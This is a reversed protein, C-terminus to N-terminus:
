LEPWIPIGLSGCEDLTPILGGMIKQTIFFHRFSYPVLNRGAHGIAALKIIREFLYLLARKTIVNLGDLSFVLHEKIAAHDQGPVVIKGWARFLGDDRCFFRRSTRVKSTEPRVKIEVLAVEGGHRRSHHQSWSLDGWRLQLQEGTRLGTVSAILFYHGALSRQRWEDDDLRNRARDCYLAVAERIATVEDAEFTSRRIAEDNKDLRPLKRFDFSDIRTENHRFLWAMMANITSQENVITTQRAALRKVNTVRYHFYDECAGRELEALKTDRGIFDLWHKLHAKITVLRGKVILGADVDKARHAVYKEVGAKADISFYSKGLRINAYLELYFDEGREIATTRNRTKLSKRAYKKESPLWLRFQWYDDRRYIVADEFILIEDEGFEQKKIVM